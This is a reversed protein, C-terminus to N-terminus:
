VRSVMRGSTSWAPSYAGGSWNETASPRERGGCVGALGGESSHQSKLSLAERATDNFQVAAWITM